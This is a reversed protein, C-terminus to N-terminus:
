TQGASLETGTMAAVTPGTAPSRGAFDASAPSKGALYGSAPAGALVLAQMRQVIQVAAADGASDGTDCIRPCQRVGCGRTLERIREVVASFRCTLSGGANRAALATV